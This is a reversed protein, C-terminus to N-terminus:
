IISMLELEKILTETEDPTGSSIRFYGKEFGFSELSRILIGKDELKKCVNDLPLNVCVFNAKSPYFFYGKKTFYDCLRKIQYFNNKYSRELFDNDELSAKAALLAPMSVSFPVVLKSIESILSGNAVAYGIRFGALGFIKSFTRMVVLNPYDKAVDIVSEYTDCFEMYAEDIVILVRKDIKKIFDLIADRDLVTGTPNNPNCIFVVDTKDNVALAIGGLDIVGEKLPVNICSGANRLASIHYLSFTKESTVINNEPKLYGRCIYEVLQNSGATILINEPLTRYGRSLLERLETCGGDPYRGLPANELAHRAKQSCGLPNENADLKTVKTVGKEKLFLDLPRGPVYAKTNLIEKKLEPKNQV